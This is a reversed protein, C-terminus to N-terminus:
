NDRRKQNIPQTKGFNYLFLPANCITAQGKLSMMDTSLTAKRGEFRGYPRSICPFYQTGVAREM